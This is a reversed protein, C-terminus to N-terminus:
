SFKCPQRCDYDDESMRSCTYLVRERDKMKQLHPWWTELTYFGFGVGPLLENTHGVRDLLVVSYLNACVNTGCHPIKLHCNKFRRFIGVAFKFFGETNISQAGMNTNVGLLEKLAGVNHKDIQSDSSTMNLVINQM